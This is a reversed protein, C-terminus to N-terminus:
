ALGAVKVIGKEVMRRWTRILARRMYWESNESDWGARSIRHDIADHCASCGYAASIDDSKRGIGHSEDPLHCLVTTEPNHNCVGVIQFTCEEGKASLRIANSRM